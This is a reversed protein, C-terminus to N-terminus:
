TAIFGVLLLIALHDVNAICARTYSVVGRLGLNM